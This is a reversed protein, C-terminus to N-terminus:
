CRNLYRLSCIILYCLTRIFVCLYYIHLVAYFFGFSLRILNNFSFFKFKDNVNTTNLNGRIRRKLKSFENRFDDASIGTTLVIKDILDIDFENLLNLLDQPSYAEEFSGYSSKQEPNFVHREKFPEKFDRDKFYSISITKYDLKLASDVMPRTDIGMILLNEM